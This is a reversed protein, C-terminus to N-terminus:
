IDSKLKIIKNQLLMLLLLATVIGLGNALVDYIDSQRTATLVGQLMEIIIGYIFSFCGVVIVLFTYKTKKYKFFAYFFWILYFFFYGLFHITKDSVEYDIKPLTGSNVLSGITIFTTYVFAFLFFTKHVLLSKILKKM